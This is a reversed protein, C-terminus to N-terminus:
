TQVSPSPLEPRSSPADGCDGPSQLGTSRLTGQHRGSSRAPGPTEGVSDDVEQRAGVRACLPVGPSYSGDAWCHAKHGPAKTALLCPQHVRSPRQSCPGQGGVQCRWLHRCGPKWLCHQASLEQGLGANQPRMGTQPRRVSLWLTGAGVGPWGLAPAPQSPATLTLTRCQALPEAQCSTSHSDAPAVGALSHSHRHYHHGVGLFRGGICPASLTSLFLASMPEPFVSM